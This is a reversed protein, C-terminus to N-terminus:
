KKEMIYSLIEKAEKLDSKDVAENIYDLQNAKAQQLELFQIMFKAAEVKDDFTKIPRGHLRVTWQKM